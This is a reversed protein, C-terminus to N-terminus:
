KLYDIAEQRNIFFHIGSSCEDFRDECFPKRPTVTKGVEYTFYKDYTSWAKVEKLTDGDITQIDLVVAKDARCKRSTGSSRRADEPILLKIIVSGNKSECKKWATFAGTEPCAFPIFPINKAGRLDAYILTAGSLNANNLNADSFDVDSLNAGGLYARRLDAGSLNAGSLDAGSLYAGGLDANSLYSNSLDAGSLNARILDAAILNTGRLNAGRLNARRMSAGSLDANRLDAGSLDAKDMVSWGESKDLWRKHAELVEKLNNGNYKVGM